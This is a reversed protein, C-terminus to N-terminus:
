TKSLSDFAEKFVEGRHKYDRFMDFSSCMPSLLVAEGPKAARFAREAADQLTSAEEMDVVGEFVKRIKPAAEGILVIKKVKEIIEKKVAAYEGGKDKGGAILVIKKPISELARKASDVNTAKSDDIFEVGRIEGLGEIRHHLPRFERIGDIIFRREVGQTMAILVVAMINELNHPGKLRSDPMEFLKKTKGGKNYVIDNGRLFVGEVKESKSYYLVKAKKPEPISKLIVDDYNLVLKDGKEHQSFIRFKANVYDDFSAYRELHDETINLICSVAPNFDVIWELQFSSTELVVTTDEDINKIEGCLSNGINGCVVAKKGSRKLIDGLLTAVTSKGNTGTIAIIPGECFNFGLEIESIIPINSELAYRIPLSDRSVGPSVVILDSGKIFNETHGGIETEIYYKEKLEEAKRKVNEDSGNDTVSAIAGKENLLLCADYGSVGFGVVVVKENRLDM